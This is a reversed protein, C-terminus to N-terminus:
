SPMPRVVERELVQSVARSVPLGATSTTSALPADRETSATTSGSTSYIAVIKGSSEFSLDVEEDPITSGTVITKDTLSQYKLVEANINLVQKRVQSGASPVVEAANKSAKMRSKIQPYVIMGAIMLLIAATVGWKVRKTMNEQYEIFVSIPAYIYM